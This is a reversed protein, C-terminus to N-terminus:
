VSTPKMRAFPCGNSSVITRAFCTLCAVLINDNTHFGNFPLADVHLAVRIGDDAGYRVGAAELNLGEVNPLRGTGTLIADVAVTSKHDDSVLDVLKQGDEVRVNVARTNLRVDIGDRAFPFDCPTLVCSEAYHIDMNEVHPLNGVVGSM